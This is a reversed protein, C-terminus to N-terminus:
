LCGYHNEIDMDMGQQVWAGINAVQAIDLFALCPINDTPHTGIIIWSATKSKLLWHSVAAAKLQGITCNWCHKPLQAAVFLWLIICNYM